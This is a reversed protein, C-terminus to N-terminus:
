VPYFQDINEGNIIMMTLMTMSRLAESSLCCKQSIGLVGQIRCCNDRSPFCAGLKESSPAQLKPKQLKSYVFIDTVYCLVAKTCIYIYICYM